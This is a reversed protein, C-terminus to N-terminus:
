YITLLKLFTLIILYKSRKSIVRIVRMISIIKNMSILHIRKLAFPNWNKSTLINKRKEKITFRDFIIRIQIRFTLSKVTTTIYGVIIQMKIFINLNSESHKQIISKPLIFLRYNQSLNTCEFIKSKQFFWFWLYIIFLIVLIFIEIL